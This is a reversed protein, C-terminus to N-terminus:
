EPTEVVKKSKKVVPEEVPVVQTVADTIQPNVVEKVVEKVEVVEPQLVPAAETLIKGDVGLIGARILRNRKVPNM